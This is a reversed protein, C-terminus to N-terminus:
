QSPKKYGPCPTQFIQQDEIRLATLRDGWLCGTDLCVINKGPIIKKNAGLTSWHGFYIHEAQKIRNPLKYWPQLDTHQEGPTVSATMDLAFEKTCFRMRTFCNTIFRLRQWGSLSESWITPQNGYMEKLYVIFNDKQLAKEAEKAYTKAEDITWMPYIGAHVMVHSGNKSTHMLPQERLWDMLQWKDHGAIVDNLTDSPRQTQTDHVIALMHLDHNGLVTIANDGLDRVFRLVALSKPGRNVLDGTFWIQDKDISFHITKLLQQLEDYCGQIDGIVYTSM